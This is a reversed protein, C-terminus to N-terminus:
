ENRTRPRAREFSSHFLRHTRAILEHHESYAALHGNGANDKIQTVYATGAGWRPLFHELLLGDVSYHRLVDYNQWSTLSNGDEIFEAGISWVSGDEAQTIQTAFYTGTNIYKASQGYLDSTVVFNYKSGDGRTARGAFALKFSISVDVSALFLDTAGQPWMALEHELTGSRNYLYINPEGKAKTWHKFQIVYGHNFFPVTARSPAPSSFLITKYPPDLTPINQSNAQAIFTLDSSIIALVCIVHPVGITTPWMSVGLARIHSYVSPLFRSPQSRQEPRDNTM